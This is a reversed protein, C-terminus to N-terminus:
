FPTEDEESYEIETIETKDVCDVIGKEVATKLLEGPESCCIYDLTQQARTCVTYLFRKGQTDNPYNEETPDLVIVSYFELGKVQLTNTITVGPGFTFNKNHGIRVKPQDYATAIELDELKPKIIQM